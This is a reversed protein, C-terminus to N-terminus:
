RRIADSKDPIHCEEVDHLRLDWVALYTFLREAFFFEAEVFVSESM